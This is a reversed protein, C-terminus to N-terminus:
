PVLDFPIEVALHGDLYVRASYHGPTRALSTGQIRIGDHRLPDCEWPFDHGDLTAGSAVQLLGGMPRGVQGHPGAWVVHLVHEHPQERNLNVLGVRAYVGRDLGRFSRRRNGEADEVQATVVRVRGRGQLRRVEFELRSAVRGHFFVVAQYRGPKLAGMPVGHAGDGQCRRPLDFPTPDSESSPSYPGGLRAVQKEREDQVIVWLSGGVKGSAPFAYFFVGPEFTHFVARPFGAEDGTYCRVLRAASSPSPTGSSSAAPSPAAVPPQSATAEPSPAALPSPPPSPSPLPPTPRVVPGYRKPTPSASPAPLAM